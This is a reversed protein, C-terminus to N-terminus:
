DLSILSTNISNHPHKWTSDLLVHIFTCTHICTYMHVHIYLWSAFFFISCFYYMSVYKCQTSSLSIFPKDWKPDVHLSSSILNSLFLPTNIQKGNLTCLPKVLDGVNSWDTAFAKFPITSYFLCIQSAFISLVTFHTVSQSTLTCLVFTPQFTSLSVLFSNHWLLSVQCANVEVKGSVLQM